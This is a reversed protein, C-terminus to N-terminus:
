FFLFIIIFFFTHKSFRLPLMFPLPHLVNRTIQELLMIYWFSLCWVKTEALEVLTCDASPSLHERSSLQLNATDMHNQKDLFHAGHITRSIFQNRLKTEHNMTGLATECWAIKNREAQKKWAAQWQAATVQKRKWNVKLYLYLCYRTLNETQRNFSAM